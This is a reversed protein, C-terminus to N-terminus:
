VKAKTGVSKVTRKNRPAAPHVKKVIKPPVLSLLAARDASIKAFLAVPSVITGQFDIPTWEREAKVISKGLWYIHSDSELKFGIDGSGKTVLTQMASEAISDFDERSM